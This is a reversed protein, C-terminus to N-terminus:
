KSVSLGFISTPKKVSGSGESAAAMEKVYASIRDRSSQHPHPGSPLVPRPLRVGDGDDLDDEEEREEREGVDVQANEKELDCEQRETPHLTDNNGSEYLSDRSSSSQGRRRKAKPPLRPTSGANDDGGSTVAQDVGSDTGGGGETISAIVKLNDYAAVAESPACPPVEQLDEEKEITSLPSADTSTNTNSVDAEGDGGREGEQGLFEWSSSDVQWSGRKAGRDGAKTGEGGSKPPRIYRGIVASLRNERKDLKRQSNRRMWPSSPPPASIKRARELPLGPSTSLDGSSASREKLPSIPEAIEEREPEEQIDGFEPCTYIRTDEAKELADLPDSYIGEKKGALASSANSSSSASSTTTHTASFSSSRQPPVRRTSTPPSLSPHQVQPHPQGKSKNEREDVHLLERQIGMVTKKRQREKPNNQESKAEDETLKFNLYAKLKGESEVPTLSREGEQGKGEWEEKSQSEKDAKAHMTTHDHWIDEYDSMKDAISSKYYGRGAGGRGAFGAPSSMKRRPHSQRSPSNPSAVVIATRSVKRQGDESSGRRERELKPSVGKFSPRRPPPTPQHEQQEQIEKLSEALLDSVQQLGLLSDDLANVTARKEDAKEAAPKWRADKFDRQAAALSTQHDFLAKQHSPLLEDVFSRRHRRRCEPSPAQKAKASEAYVPTPAKENMPNVPSKAEMAPFSMPYRWFDAFCYKYKAM